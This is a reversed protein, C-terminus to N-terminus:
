ETGVAAVVAALEAPRVYMAFGLSQFGSEWWPRGGAEPEIGSVVKVYWDWEERELSNSVLFLGRAGYMADLNRYVRRVISSKVAQTSEDFPACNQADVRQYV